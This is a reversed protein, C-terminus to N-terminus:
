PKFQVFNLMYIYIYIISSKTCSQLLELASAICDQVLGDYRFVISYDAQPVQRNGPHWAGIFDFQVFMVTANVHNIWGWHQLIGTENIKLFSSDIQLHLFELQLNILIIQPMVYNDNGPSKKLVSKMFNICRRHINVSPHWIVILYNEILLMKMCSVNLVFCLYQHGKYVNSLLYGIM